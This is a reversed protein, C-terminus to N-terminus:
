AMYASFFGSIALYAGLSAAVAVFVGGSKFFRLWRSVTILASNQQAHGFSEIVQQLGFALNFLIGTAMFLAGMLNDLILRHGSNNFRNWVEMKQPLLGSATTPQAAAAIVEAPMADFITIALWALSFTLALSGAAPLSDRYHYSPDQLQPWFTLVHLAGGAIVGLNLWFFIAEYHNLYSVAMIVTVAFIGMCLAIVTSAPDDGDPRNGGGKNNYVNKQNFHNNQNFNNSGGTIVGVNMNNNM